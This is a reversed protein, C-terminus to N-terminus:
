LCCYCLHHQIIEEENMLGETRVQHAEFRYFSQVMALMFAPHLDSWNM